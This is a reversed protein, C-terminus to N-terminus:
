LSSKLDKKEPPVPYKLLISKIAPHIEGQLYQPDYIDGEASGTWVLRNLKRDILNITITGKIYEITQQSCISYDCDALNYPMNFQQQYYYNYNNYYPDSYYPNLNYNPNYSYNYYTNNDCNYPDAVTEQKKENILVLEVLIDPSDLNVYYGRNTLERDIYNKANNAIIDNNYHLTTDSRKTDLWAYTRYRSFDVTEDYTSYVNDYTKCKSFLVAVIITVLLIINKIPM